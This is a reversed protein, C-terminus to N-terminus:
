SYSVHNDFFKLFGRLSGLNIPTAINAIDQSVTLMDPAAVMVAM